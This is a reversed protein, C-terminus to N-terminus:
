NARARSNRQSAFRSAEESSRATSGMEVMNEKVMALNAFARAAQAQINEEVDSSLLSVVRVVAQPYSILKRKKRWDRWFEQSTQSSAGCEKAHAINAVAKAAELQVTVPVEKCLLDAIKELAKPVEQTLQIQM